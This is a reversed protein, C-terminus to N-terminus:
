RSRSQWSRLVRRCCARAEVARDEALRSSILDGLTKFSESREEEPLVEARRSWATWAREWQGTDVYAQIWADAGEGGFSTALSVEEALSALDADRNLETTRITRALLTNNRKDTLVIYFRYENGQSSISGKLMFDGSREALSETDSLETIDMEILRFRGARLLAIRFEESFIESRQPTVGELAELPKYLLTPIQLVHSAATQASAAGSFFPFVLIILLCVKL